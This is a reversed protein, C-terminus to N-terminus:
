RSASLTVSFQRTDEGRRTRISITDGIKVQEMASLYDDQNRIPRDGIHTIIDGLRIEGRPGRSAGIMGSTAAPMGRLVRVIAVGEVGYRRTWQDSALEVGLVPRLIKGYAILQPVVEKVMNVPIAFGIGASAGSPSFIATNVGIVQGLSNLLPGGSNGPNIAADTQIVGQIRRNSPSQIERDLASVIGVTLSSDLGFPNGIALVKRGVTLESSDGLPLPKLSDPPNELRLVALDREPAVGVVEAEFDGEDQLTVTLKDAGAVVHFNTVVLGSNNWVFGSGAGRPIETVSFSFLNRRLASSTVSVVSPSAKSFIETTNREDDTAFSLYNAAPTDVGDHQEGPEASCSLTGLSLLAVGLWKLRGLTSSIM